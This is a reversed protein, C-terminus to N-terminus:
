AASHAPCRGSARLQPPRDQRIRIRGRDRYRNTAASYHSSCGSRRTECANRRSEKDCGVRLSRRRELDPMRGSRSQTSRRCIRSPCNQLRRSHQYRSHTCEEPCAGAALCSQRLVRWYPCAIHPSAMSKRRQRLHEHHCRRKFPGHGAAITCDIAVFRQWTFGKPAGCLLRRRNPQGRSGRWRLVDPNRHGWRRGAREVVASTPEM